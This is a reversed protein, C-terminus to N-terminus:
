GKPRGGQALAPSAEQTRTAVPAWPRCPGAPPCTPLHTADVLWLPMCHFGIDLRQQPHHIIKQPKISQYIIAVTLPSFM